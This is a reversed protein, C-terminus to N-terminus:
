TRRMEALPSASALQRRARKVLGWVLAIDSLRPTLERIRYGAFRWHLVTSATGGALFAITAAAAAGDFCHDHYLVRIKM